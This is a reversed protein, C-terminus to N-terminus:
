CVHGPPAVAAHSEVRACNEITKEVRKRMNRKGVPLSGEGSQRGTAQIAPITTATETATVASVGPM